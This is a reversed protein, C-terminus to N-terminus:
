NGYVIVETVEDGWMLADEGTGLIKSDCSRVELRTIIEEIRYPVEDVVEFAPQTPGNLTWTAYYVGNEMNDHIVNLVDERMDRLLVEAGEAGHSARNVFITVIGTIFYSGKFDIQQVGGEHFSVVPSAGSLELPPYGYVTQADMIGNTLLDVVEDVVVNFDPAVGM